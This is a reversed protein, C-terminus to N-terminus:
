SRGKWPRAMPRPGRGGGPALSFQGSASRGGPLRWCQARRTGQSRDSKHVRLMTRTAQSRALGVTRRFAEILACHRGQEIAAGAAGSPPYPVRRFLESSRGM